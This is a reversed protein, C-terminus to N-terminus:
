LRKLFAFGLGFMCVTVPEPVCATKVSIYDLAASYGDGADEFVICVHESEPNPEILWQATLLQWGDELVEIEWAVPSAVGGDPTVSSHSGLSGRFILEIWVDKHKNPTPNNPIGASFQFNDGEVENRGEWYGAPNHVPDPSWDGFAGRSPNWGAHISAQPGPGFENDYGAEATAPNQDAAFEWEQWTRGNELTAWALGAIAVLGAVVVWVLLKKTM